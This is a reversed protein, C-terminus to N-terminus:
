VAVFRTVPPLALSIDPTVQWIEVKRYPPDTFSGNQVNFFRLIIKIRRYYEEPLNHPSVVTAEM